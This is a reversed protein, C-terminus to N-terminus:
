IQMRTIDLFATVVKDRLAIATQLSQEGQMVADVVERTSIEGKIGAFSAAEAGKLNNMAETTMSGLVEGFTLGTALGGTAQQPSLASQAADLSVDGIGRSMGLASVANIANIM